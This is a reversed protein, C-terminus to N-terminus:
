KIVVPVGDVVKQITYQQKESVVGGLEDFTIDGFTETNFTHSRLYDSYTENEEKESLMQAIMYITDYTTGSSYLAELGTQAKFKEEFDRSPTTNTVYVVGEYEGRYDEAYLHWDVVNDSYLSIDVFLLPLQKRLNEQAMEDIVSFHLADINQNKLNLLASKGDDGYNIFETIIEADSGSARLGKEINKAFDIYYADNQLIIGIKKHEQKSMYLGLEYAQQDLRYFSSFVNENFEESQITSIGASPTILVKRNDEFLKAPGPFSDLWTPGVVIDVGDLSIMKQVATVGDKSSSQTDEIVLEIKKGNIGGNTNIENAAILAAKQELEGWEAAYGTEAVALGIKYPELSDGSHESTKQSLLQYGAIIIIAAIIIGIIKKM